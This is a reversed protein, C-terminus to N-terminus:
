LYIGVSNTFWGPLLQMLPALPFWLGMLVRLILTLLVAFGLNWLAWGRGTLGARWLCLQGFLLTSFSFGVWGMAFVYLGFLIVYSIVSRMGSYALAAQARTQAPSTQRRARRGDLVLAIAAFVMVALGVVPLNRPSLYWGKGDPAGTTAIPLLALLVIGVVLFIAAAQAQAIPTVSIEAEPRNEESPM